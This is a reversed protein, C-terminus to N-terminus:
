FDFFLSWEDVGVFVCVTTLISHAFLKSVRMLEGLLKKLELFFGFTKHAGACLVVQDAGRRVACDAAEVTAAVAAAVVVVAVAVVVVAEIVAVIVVAEGVM